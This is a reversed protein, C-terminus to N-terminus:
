KSQLYLRVGEEAYGIARALTVKAVNHLYLSSIYNENASAVSEQAQVVELNDTVGAAFRDKAQALTQDALQVASRAVEVQDAAANLDLLASRVEYDIRGRLDELRAQSQRLSAEAQLVDAHAKNGQFIPINLSAAAEVTGHSNSPTVGIDGYDASLGLTPLHEATAAKRFHEAARVQRLAAQYDPRSGYARRLNEEVGLAALPAYPAKDTLAFEQGPPLGIVRALALKQKAFTNQAEIRQQQRSQLEVHARLTDIAPSVGANQQDVAKDYLAQATQVQAQAADVRAADALAVLYANGVALVVIERADKYSYQAARENEAAGRERDLAHLDLVSQTLYLRADFFGFPGIVKPFGPFRLGEAQLNTQLVHESIGAKVNPLLESLEKWKQGRAALTNDGQLLLGLNNRLGRDIAEKFSLPLIESTAKGEPVSGSFSGQDVVPVGAGSASPSGDADSGMQQPGSAGGQGLAPRASFTLGVLVCFVGAAALRAWQQPSRNSRNQDEM